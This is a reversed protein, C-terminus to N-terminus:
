KDEPFPLWKFNIRASRKLRYARDRCVGLRSEIEACTAQRMFQIEEDTYKYTRNAQKHLYPGPNTRMAQIRDARMHAIKEQQTGESIHNINMCLRNHCSHNANHRPQIPRGLEIMLLARTALMMGRKGSERDSYGIFPYGINNTMGTWLQCGGADPASINRYLYDGNIGRTGAGPYIFNERKMNAM